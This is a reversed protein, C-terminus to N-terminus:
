LLVAKAEDEYSFYRGYFKRGKDYCQNLIKDDLTKVTDSALKLIDADNIIDGLKFALEGSQRVGFLDGPGRMKLDEDAIEFGNNSKKLVELRKMTEPTDKGAMFICYSQASGRGIRGRLQHLSALGFREANEILMVTANPVNIGVEVVTTSVLVKINGKAFEEMVKNKEEDKMKGHLFATTIDNGLFEALEKEYSLVDALGNDEDENKEIAPCIVYAQHGELAQTRIFKWAAPRYDTGVVANKVPLREAPVEDLLSVSLDGYLIVALTRPIPTASMVITHVMDGKNKLTERQRVGFRHQEDTIVLSLESFEVNDELLAHTGIIIDAEHASILEKAKKKESAKLSGTLLVTRIGTGELAKAFTEAHQRALVETPAMLCSQTNNKAAFFCALIALVTKGSGVDGQILRNMVKGSLMDNKIEDWVRKQAGTLEYPFSNILDSAEPVDHFSFPSIDDKDAEKMKRVSLAFLFFEDFVLRRRAALMTEKSKPFHIEEVAPQLGTLGLEHRQSVTLYDDGAGLEPLAQKVCKRLLNSTVGKTLHYIPQLSRSKTLYEQKTLIEPQYIQLRSGRRVVKGRFVFHSGPFLKNKIYPMSFWTLEITGTGDSVEALVTKKGAKSSLTARKVPAANILCVEGERLSSIPVPESYTDYNVPFYSLLDRKTYIGLKELLASTKEGVGKIDNISDTLAM